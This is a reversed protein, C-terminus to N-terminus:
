YIENQISVEGYKMKEFHKSVPMLQKLCQLGYWRCIEKTETVRLMLYAAPLFEVLRHAFNAFYAFM